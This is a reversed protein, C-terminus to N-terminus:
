ELTGTVIYIQSIGLLIIGSSIAGLVIYKLGAETSYQGTKRLTAMIYSSLSMTEIALYMMMMDRASVMLMMGLIGLMVIQNYESDEMRARRDSMEERSIMLVIIGGGIIVMKILAQSAETSHSSVAWETIMTGILILVSLDSVTVLLSVRGGRILVGYGLITVIGIALLVEPLVGLIYESTINM